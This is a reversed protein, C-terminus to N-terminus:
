KTTVFHPSEDANAELIRLTSKYTTTTPKTVIIHWPSEKYRHARRNLSLYLSLYEYSSIQRTTKPTYLIHMSLPLRLNSTASNIAGSWKDFFACASGARASEMLTLSASPNYLVCNILVELLSLKLPSTEANDLGSLTTTIIQQISQQLFTLLRNAIPLIPRVCTM